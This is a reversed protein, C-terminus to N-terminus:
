ILRRTPLADTIQSLGGTSPGARRLLLSLTLTAAILIVLVVLVVGFRRRGDVGETSTQRANRAPPQAAHTRAAYEAILRRSAEVPDAGIALAVSRVFGRVFVQAPLRDLQGAELFHLFEVKIKTKLAVDEIPIGHAERERRLLAGSSEEPRAGAASARDAVTRRHSM